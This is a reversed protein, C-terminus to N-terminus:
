RAEEIRNRAEDVFSLDVYKPAVQLGLPIVGVDHAADIANQIGVLNPKAYPDRFYDKKTFLYDLDAEPLKMFDAIIATAAPRNGPAEFWRLARTYDEMFDMMAARHQELFATRGVLFVTETQGWGDFATFLARYKGSDLMPLLQPLLVVSMDVKNEELLSPMAPFAAQVTVYDRRDVLGARKLMVRMATDSASGIVNTAIRKGKLDAVTKIPGDTQVLYTETHYGPVGDQIIDGIVRVDLHANSVTLALTVPSYAALDVEGAAMATMQPSSGRFAIPTVTYSTGYHRLIDPRTFLVPIMHGPMTSWAIRIDLPDASAARLGLLSLAGVLGFLLRFRHPLFNRM